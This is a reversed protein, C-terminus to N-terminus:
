KYFTDEKWRLPNTNIYNQIKLHDNTNRIIHDHFRSQWKFELKNENAFKTVGIKYGRIISAVNKSQPGFSNPRYQQYTNPTLENVIIIGHVHNPMVVFSDLEVHLFHGPIALWCNNAAEGLPSLQMEDNIIEGFYHDRNYTCITIFYAAHSTYDWNQLRTSQIRYKNNFLHM